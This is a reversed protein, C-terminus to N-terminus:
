TCILRSKCFLAVTHCRHAKRVTQYLDVLSRAIPYLFFFFINRGPSSGWVSGLLLFFFSFFPDGLQFEFGMGEKGLRAVNLTRPLHLSPTQMLTKYMIVHLLVLYAM